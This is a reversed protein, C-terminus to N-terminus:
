FDTPSATLVPQHYPHLTNTPILLSRPPPTYFISPPLSILPQINQDAVLISPSLPDIFFCLGFVFSMMFFLIIFHPPLYVLNQLTFLIRKNKSYIFYLISYLIFIFKKPDLIETYKLLYSSIYFCLFIHHFFNNM